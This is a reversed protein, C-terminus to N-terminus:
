HPSASRGQSHPLWRSGIAIVPALPPRLRRAIRDVLRRTPSDVIAPEPAQPRTATEHLANVLLGILNSADALAIPTSAICVSGVWHSVVVTSTEPHWTARLYQDNGRVDAVSVRRNSMEAVGVLIVSGGNGPAGCPPVCDHPGHVLGSLAGKAIV